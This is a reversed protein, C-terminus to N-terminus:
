LMMVGELDGPGVRKRGWHVFSVADSRPGLEASQTAFMSDWM